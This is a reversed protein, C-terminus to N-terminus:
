MPSPTIEEEKETWNKGIHLRRRQPGKKEGIMRGTVLRLPPIEMKKRKGIGLAYYKKQKVM